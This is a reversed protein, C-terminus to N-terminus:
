AKRLYAHVCRWPRSNDIVKVLEAGVIRMLLMHMNIAWDPGIQTQGRILIVDATLKPPLLPMV